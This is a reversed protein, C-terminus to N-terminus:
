GVYYSLGRVGDVADWERSFDYGSIGCIGVGINRGDEPLCIESCLDMCTHVLGCLYYM